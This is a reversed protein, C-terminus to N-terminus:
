CGWSLSHEASRGHVLFVLNSGSVDLESGPQVNTMVECSKSAMTGYLLPELCLTPCNNLPKINRSESKQEMFSVQQAIGFVSWICVFGSFNVANSAPRRTKCYVFIAVCRERHATSGEVM